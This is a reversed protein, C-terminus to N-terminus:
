RHGRHVLPKKRRSEEDKTKQKNNLIESLSVIKKHTNGAQLVTLSLNRPLLMSFYCYIAPAALSIQEMWNCGMSFGENESDDIKRCPHCFWEKTNREPMAWGPLVKHGTWCIHPVSGEQQRASTCLPMPRQCRWIRCQKGKSVNVNGEEWMRSNCLTHSISCCGCQTLGFLRGTRYGAAEPAM